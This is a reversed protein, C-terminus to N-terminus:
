LRNIPLVVSRSTSSAGRLTSTTFHGAAESTEDHVNRAFGHQQSYEDAFVIFRPMPREVFVEAVGSIPKRGSSM